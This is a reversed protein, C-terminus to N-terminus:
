VESGQVESGEKGIEKIKGAMEKIDKVEIGEIKEILETIGMIEQLNRVKKAADIEGIQALQMQLVIVKAEDETAIIGEDKLNVRAEFSKLIKYPKIFPKFEENNALPIMVEKINTLTENDKLLAQIGSVHFSGDIRPIGSIGRKDEKNIRIGFEELEEQTFIELYDNYGAQSEVIRAGATITDIAGEEINEGMLGFIAMAQDLNMASERFTIDKRYGPLGQVSDTVFSGRQFNQDYYQMNALVENTRGRRQVVRIAQQGSITDKVMNVKGPWQEVDVADVLAEVNVESNPNVVWQMYDQNLCMMNNMAEWLTMIGELLGRGGHKLINPLPSFSMGPWRMNGYPSVRPKQIIRGGAMTFSAKPLLLDGKPGLVIGWFESTLILKRFRSREYIMEKRAAIAEKSMMPNDPDESTVDKVRAVDFYRGNKEGRKLVFYDLWEQHIWYM